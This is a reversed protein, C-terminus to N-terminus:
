SSYRDIWEIETYELIDQLDPPFWIKQKGQASKKKRKGGNNERGAESLIILVSGPILQGEFNHLQGWSKNINM